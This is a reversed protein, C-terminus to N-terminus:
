RCWGESQGRLSDKGRRNDKFGTLVADMLASNPFYAIPTERRLVRKMRFQSQRSGVCHWPSCAFGRLGSQPKAFIRCPVQPHVGAPDVDSDNRSRRLGSQPKAFIRFPVQPHIDAPEADGVSRSRRLGSQPKAFIRCNGASSHRGSRRRQREKIRGVFIRCNGAPSRRGSRRRQREKIRGVFTVARGLKIKSQDIDADHRGLM